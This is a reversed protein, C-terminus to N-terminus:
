IWVWKFLQSELCYKVSDCARLLAPIFHIITLCKATNWERGPNCVNSVRPVTGSRWSRLRGTGEWGQCIVCGRHLVDGTNVRVTSFRTCYWLDPSVVSHWNNVLDADCTPYQLKLLSNTNTTPNTKHLCQMIPLRVRPGSLIKHRSHIFDLSGWRELGKKLINAAQPMWGWICIYFNPMWLTQADLVVLRHSLLKHCLVTKGGDPKNWYESPPVARLISLLLTKGKIRKGPMTLVCVCVSLIAPLGSCCHSNGGSCVLAPISSAASWSLLHLLNDLSVFLKSM